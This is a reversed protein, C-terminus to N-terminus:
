PWVVWKQGWFPTKLGVRLWMGIGELGGWVGEDGGVGFVSRKGQKDGRSM